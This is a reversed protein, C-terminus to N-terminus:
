IDSLDIDMLEQNCTGEYDYDKKYRKVAEVKSSELNKDSYDDNKDDILFAETFKVIKSDSLMSSHSCVDTTIKKHDFFNKSDDICDCGIASYEKNLDDKNFKFEGDQTGLLSCYEVFTINQPLNNKKKEYLWRLSTLYSSWGPVTGDGGMNLIDKDEFKKMNHVEDFIYGSKTPSSTAFLIVTDVPSIKVDNTKSTKIQYEQMKMIKKKMMAHTDFRSSDIKVDPYKDGYDNYFRNIIEKMKDSNYPYPYYKQIFADACTTSTEDCDHIYYDKLRKETENCHNLIDYSVETNDRRYLVSPCTDPNFLNTRCPLVNPLNYPKSQCEKEFEKYIDSNVLDSIKCDKSNFQPFNKFLWLNPIEEDTCDKNKCKEENHLRTLIQNRFEPNQKNYQNLVPHPWLEFGSPAYPMSISQGFEDVSVEFYDWTEISFKQNFENSLHFYLEITKTAGAFPPGVAIVKKIKKLIESKSELLSNLTYVAGLSHSIIVVPKGTNEYLKNIQHEFSEIFQKNTSIFRRFDYPLGAMSFGTRFGMKQYREMMYQYGISGGSNVWSEKIPTSGVSVINSAPGIGCKSKNLTDKTSGSFTIRVASNHTCIVEEVIEDDNETTKSKENKNVELKPCENVNYFKFFYGWCASYKNEDGSVHMKFPSDFLAPWIVHEEYGNAGDNPCVSEGCYLRLDVMDNKNKAFQKCDISAVLRTAYLGPVMLVPNCKGLIFRKNEDINDSNLNNKKFLDEAASKDYLCEDTDFLGKLPEETKNEKEARNLLEDFLSNPDTEDQVQLFELSKRENETKSESNLIVNLQLTILFLVFLIKFCHKHKNLKTILM